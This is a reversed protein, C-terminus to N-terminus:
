AKDVHMRFTLYGAGRQWGTPTKGVPYEGDQQYQGLTLHEGHSFGDDNLTMNPVDSTHMVATNELMTLRGPVDIDVAAGDWVAFANKAQLIVGFAVHRGLKTNGLQATLGHLTAAPSEAYQDSCENFVGVYVELTDGVRVQVSDGFKEDSDAHRIRTFNRRDGAKPDDTISNLVAYTAPRDMTFLERAPGWGGGDSSGPDSDISMKVESSETAGGLKDRNVYLTGGVTVVAVFLPVAIRSVWWHWSRETFGEGEAM